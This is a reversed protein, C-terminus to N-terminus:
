LLITSHSHHTNKEHNLTLTKKTYKILYGSFGKGTCHIIISIM